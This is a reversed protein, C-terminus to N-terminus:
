KNSCSHVIYQTEFLSYSLIKYHVLKHGTPYKTLQHITLVTEFVKLYVSIVTVSTYHRHTNTNTQTNTAILAIDFIRFAAMIMAMSQFLESGVPRIKM